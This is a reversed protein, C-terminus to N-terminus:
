VQLSRLRLLFCKKTTPLEKPTGQNMKPEDKTKLGSYIYSTCLIRIKINTSYSCFFRM